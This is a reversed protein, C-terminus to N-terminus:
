EPAWVPDVETSTGEITVLATQGSGDANMVFLEYRPSHRGTVFALRTGDHSWSALMDFYPSKTLRTVGSNDINMVFIESDGDDRAKFSSFAIQKGDPSWAITTGNIWPDNTLRTLGSGDANMVYLNWFVSDNKDRDSIFAIQRSNPSWVPNINSSTHQTLNKIGTGDANMVMIDEEPGNQSYYVIYKGDPSWAPDYYCCDTLRKIQSGDANMTCINMGTSQYNCQFVMQKGDPSWWAHLAGIFEESNVADTIKKEGSGDANIVWINYSGGKVSTYAIRGTTSTMPQSPTVTGAQNPQEASSGAGATAAQVLGSVMPTWTTLPTHTPYATPMFAPLYPCCGAILIVIPLTSLPFLLKSVLHNMAVEKIFSCTM